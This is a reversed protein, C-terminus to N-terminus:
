NWSMELCEQVVKDSTGEYVIEEHQQSRWQFSWVAFSRSAELTRQTQTVVQQKTTTATTTKKEEYIRTVSNRNNTRTFRRRTFQTWENQYLVKASKNKKTTLKAVIWKRQKPHGSIKYELQALQITWRFKRKETTVVISLSLVVTYPDAPVIEQSHLQRTVIGILVSIVIKREVM